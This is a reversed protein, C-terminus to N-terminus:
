DTKYDQFEVIYVEQFTTLMATTNQAEKLRRSIVQRMKSM